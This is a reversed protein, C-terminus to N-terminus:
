RAFISLQTWPYYACGSVLAPNNALNAAGLRRSVMRGAADYDARQLYYYPGAGLVNQVGGQPLYTYSVQEGVGGSNNAPYKMWSVGEASNYGYQTIFTGSGSIVKSEQTLRGRRDYSWASSNRTKGFTEADVWSSSWV